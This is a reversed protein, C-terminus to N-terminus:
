LLISDLSNSESPLSKPKTLVLCNTTGVPNASSCSLALIYLMLPSTVVDWVHPDGKLFTAIRSGVSGAENLYKDIQQRTLPRLVLGSELDLRRQLGRYVEVRCSAILQPVTIATQMRNISAICEDRDVVQVEDLGDLVLALSGENMWARSVRFPVEYVRFLERVLWEEFRLPVRRLRRWSWRRFNSSWGALDVIVPIPRRLDTTAARALSVTMRLLLNTKGAGADGMILISQQNWVTVNILNDSSIQQGAPVKPVLVSSKSPSIATADEDLVLQM